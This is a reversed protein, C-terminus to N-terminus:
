AKEKGAKRFVKPSYYFENRSIQQEQVFEGTGVNEEVLIVNEGIKAISTFSIEIYEPKKFGRTPKPVRLAVVQNTKEDIIIDEAFGLKKGDAVRIIEKSKLEAFKM